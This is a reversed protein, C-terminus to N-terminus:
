DELYEGRLIHEANDRLVAKAYEEGYKKYIYQACERMRPARRGNSHADTGVVDVLEEKM